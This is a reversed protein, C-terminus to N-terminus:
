PSRGPAERLAPLLGSDALAAVLAVNARAPGGVVRVEGAVTWLRAVIAELDPHGAGRTTLSFPVIAEPAVFVVTRRSMRPLARLAELPELGLVVDAQAPGIRHGAGRGICVTAEVSGGRQSMGHLQGVRVDLGARCAAEGIARAATLVGQGGVGVVLIRLTGTM